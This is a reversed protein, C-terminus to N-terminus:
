RVRPLVDAWADGLFFRLFIGHSVAVVTSRACRELDEGVVVEGEDDLAPDLEPEEAAGDEVEPGALM